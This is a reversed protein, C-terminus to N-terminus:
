RAEHIQPPNNRVTAIYKCSRAEGSPHPDARGPRAGRNNCRIEQHQNKARKKRDHERKQQPEGHTPQVGFPEPLPRQRADNERQRHSPSHAPRRARRIGRSQLARAALDGNQEKEAHAPDGFVMRQEAQRHGRKSGRNEEENVARKRLFGFGDLATETACAELRHPEAQLWNASAIVVFGM